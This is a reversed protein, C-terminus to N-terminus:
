RMEAPVHKEDALRESWISEMKLIFGTVPGDGLILKPHELREPPTGPRYITAWRDIPDILWALQVGNALWMEM